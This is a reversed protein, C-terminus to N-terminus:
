KLRINGSSTQLQVLPGGGNVKGRIRHKDLTGSMTIERNINLDGSGTSALLEFRASQPLTINVDGSGTEAAWESTVDGDATINGSGTHARFGGKVGSAIVDGSGTGLRL